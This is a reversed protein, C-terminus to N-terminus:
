SLGLVRAPCTSDLTPERRNESAWDRPERQLRLGASDKELKKQYNQDRYANPTRQILAPYYCTKWFMDSRAKPGSPKESQILPMEIM